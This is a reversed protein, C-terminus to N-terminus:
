VKKTNRENGFPGPTENRGFLKMREAGKNWVGVLQHLPDLDLSTLLCVFFSGFETGKWKGLRFFLVLFCSVRLFGGESFGFVGSKKEPGRLAQWWLTIRQMRAIRGVTRPVGPGHPNTCRREGERFSVALKCRFISPTFVEKRKPGPRNEKSAM